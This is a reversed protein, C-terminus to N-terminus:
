FTWQSQWKSRHVPPHPNYFSTWECPLRRLIQPLLVQVVQVAVNNLTAFAYIEIPGGWLRERIAEAYHHVTGCRPLNQASIWQSITLEQFVTSM